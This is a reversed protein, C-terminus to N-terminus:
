STQLDVRALSQHLQDSLWGELDPGTRIWGAEVAWEIGQSYAFAGVPLSPSVLQMLRLLPLAGDTTATATDTRM